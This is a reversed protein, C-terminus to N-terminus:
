WGRYPLLDAQSIQKATHGVSNGIRRNDWRVASQWGQLDEPRLKQRGRGRCGAQFPQLSHQEQVLNSLPFPLEEAM